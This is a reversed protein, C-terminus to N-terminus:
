KDLISILLSMLITRIEISLIPKKEEKLKISTQRTSEM